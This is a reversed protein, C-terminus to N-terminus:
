IHLLWPFVQYYYISVFPPPRPPFCRLLILRFAVSSFFLAPLHLTASHSPFAGVSPLLPFPDSLTSFSPWAAYAKKNFRAGRRARRDM